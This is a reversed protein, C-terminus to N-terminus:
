RAAVSNPSYGLDKFFDALGTELPYFPKALKPAPTKLALAGTPVTFIKRKTAAGSGETKSLLMTNFFRGVKPPLKTGLTNPYARVVGEAEGEPQIYTLHSNIIVHCRVSDSYLLGLLNEIRDMAAGWDQIQPHAPPLRGAMALVGAMASLSLFSLSDIVLISSQDWSSVPGLDYDDTKWNSLLKMARSFASPSGEYSVLGASSVKRNDTCTEWYVRSQVESSDTALEQQLIQVGNDADIIRLSYGARALSALAGTKGTGSDGIHLIKLPSSDPPTTSLQPM